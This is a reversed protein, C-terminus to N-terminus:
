VAETTAAVTSVRSKTVQVVSTTKPLIFDYKESLLDSVQVVDGVGLNTIDIELKNPLDKPNVKEEIMYLLSERLSLLIAASEKIIKDRTKFANKSAYVYEILSEIAECKEECFKSYDSETDGERIERDIKIYDQLLEIAEDINIKM